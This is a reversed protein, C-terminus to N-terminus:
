FGSAKAGCLIAAHRVAKAIRAVLESDTSSTKVTKSGFMMITEASTDPQSADIAYSRVRISSVDINKFVILSDVEFGFDQSTTAGDPQFHHSSAPLGYLSTGPTPVFQLAYFRAASSNSSSLSSMRDSVYLDCGKFSYKVSHTINEMGDDAFALSPLNQSLWATTKSLDSGLATAPILGMLALVVVFSSRWLALISHKPVLMPNSDMKVLAIM